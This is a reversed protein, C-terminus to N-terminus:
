FDSAVGGKEWDGYRTPELGQRRGGKETPLAAAARDIEARRAEAEALARKAAPTLARAPKPENQTEDNMHMMQACIANSDIGRAVRGWFADAGGAFEAYSISLYLFFM